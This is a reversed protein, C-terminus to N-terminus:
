VILKLFEQWTDTLAKQDVPYFYHHDKQYPEGLRKLLVWQTAQSSSINKKDQEILRLLHIWLTEPTLQRQGLLTDWEQKTILCNYQKLQHIIFERDKPPLGVLKESLLAAYAMGLGIAEGHKLHMMAENHVELFVAELAHGLTHGFNLVTRLGEELPDEQVVEAKVKIVKLLPAILDATASEIQHFPLLNQALTRQGSIFAHKLCEALGSRRERHDLSKLWGPWVIVKEPFAFQGIQNKGYPPFNVATKGGVCADAMALLTTPVFSFDCNANAAAFAAVDSLTGGGVITWHLPRGAAKWAETLQAVMELSKYQESVVVSFHPVSELLHPWAKVVNRDVVLFSPKQLVTEWTWHSLCQIPYQGHDTWTRKSSLTKARITVGRKYVHSAKLVPAVLEKPLETLDWGQSRPLKQAFAYLLAEITGDPWGLRYCLLRNEESINLSNITWNFFSEDNIQPPRVVWDVRLENSPTISKAM